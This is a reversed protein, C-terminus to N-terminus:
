YLIKLTRVNKHTRSCVPTPCVSLSDACCDSKSFFEGNKKRTNWHRHEDDNEVVPFARDQLLSLHEASPQTLDILVLLQLPQLSLVPEDADPVREVLPLRLVEDIFEVTDKRSEPPFSTRSQSYLSTHHQHEGKGIRHPPTGRVCLNLGGGGEGVWGQRSGLAVLLERKKNM